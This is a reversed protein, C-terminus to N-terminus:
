RAPELRRIGFLYYIVGLSRERRAGSILEYAERAQDITFRHTILPNLNLKGEALLHLFGEMNRTETWRVHGIPYDRGKQEYAADYRGPGYSRSVRFDLEKEYYRQRQLEMGVTGVAVVVARDRAVGAALNM